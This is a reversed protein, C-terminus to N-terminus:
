ASGPRRWELVRVQGPGTLSRGVLTLKDGDLVMERAQETGLWAPVPAVTITHRLRDGDDERWTGAYSSYAQSVGAASPGSDARMMTVSVHGDASYILLGRPHPGLPGEHRNGSDDLDDYAVLEWAGTLDPRM